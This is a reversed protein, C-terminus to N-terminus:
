GDVVVERHGMYLLTFILAVIAALAPNILAVVLFAMRGALEQM